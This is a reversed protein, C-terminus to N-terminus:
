EGGNLRVRVAAAHAQYGELQALATITPALARVARADAGIVSTRKVFDYVGLPSSFRATGGTPLVHNPGAAYDGLPAAAYPGAFIAGANRIAPVWRAADTTLLELHEPAIQNALEVAERMTRVVVLAGRRRLVRAIDARRPLAKSQDDLARRVAEAVRLSPTLLVACEDGSGHEAQALLDAAAFAPPTSADAIVVVESPGAIKDIDVIGYVHRKAAQVWANGPGVIKDVAPVTATGFALAAVAQAGGIRYIQDLGAIAAAALVAPNYGAPGAPSVMILERVGAVRAPIANMLVSSPYSGHGGPVYLGVRQLPSIRQGLTFGLSDRYRWSRQRQRRHYAAIRRAATRLARLAAPSLSRVAADIEARGVRLKAPTLSVGDFRRTFDILARDGRRRVAEVIRRAQGDVHPSATASRERIAAFQRTFDRQSTSLIRIIDPM